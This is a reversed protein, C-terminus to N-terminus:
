KLPITAAQTLYVVLESLETGVGIVIGKRLITPKKSLNALQIKTPEHKQAKEIGSALLGMGHRM